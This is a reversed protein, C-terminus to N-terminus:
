VVGASDVGNVFARHTSLDTNECHEYAFTTHVDFISTIKLSRTILSDTRLDNAM